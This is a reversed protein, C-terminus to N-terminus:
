LTGQGQRAMFVQLDEPTGLGWMEDVNFTLIRRGDAIANNFVPCVYFEGNVRIDDSVMQEAYKVFDSGKAWYYFGVTALDSIPDKEAVKEVYGQDNLKAFSWKPHTSKFTVIGGDAKTEQMYYFFESPNWNVFQDSNAFFLPRDNDILSKALLATIAAGETLGDTEVIQCGPAILDLMRDLHYTENHNKQVVFIHKGDIGLNEVVVQIMPKGDIEILPKPFTYGAAKFRSGAGAMPILVNMSKDSWKLRKPVCSNLKSLVNKVRVMRPAEVRMVKAGAHAAATLGVPSDELIVTDAPTVQFHIMARWFIEPHPKPSVVDENGLILDCFQAVKLHQLAAIVTARISNSCVAVYTSEDLGLVELTEQVCEEVRVETILNTTLQQKRCFIESHRDRDLGREDSLKELKDVTKLGDFDKLHDEMSIAYEAGLALNLADFHVRKADILVGDLDFIVLHKKM